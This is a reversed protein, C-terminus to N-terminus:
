GLQLSFESLGQWRPFKPGEFRSVIIRKERIVGFIQILQHAIAGCDVPFALLICLVPCFRMHMQHPEFKVITLIVVLFRIVHVVRGIEGIVSFRTLVPIIFTAFLFFTLGM